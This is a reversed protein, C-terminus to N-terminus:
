MRKIIMNAEDNGNAEITYTYDHQDDDLQFVTNESVGAIAKGLTYFDNAYDTSEEKQIFGIVYFSDAPNGCVYSDNEIPKEDFYGGILKSVEQIIRNAILKRDSRRNLFGIKFRLYMGSKPRNPLMITDKEVDGFYMQVFFTDRQDILTVGVATQQAFRSNFDVPASHISGFQPNDANKPKRPRMSM